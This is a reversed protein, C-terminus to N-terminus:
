NFIIRWIELETMRTDLSELSENTNEPVNALKTKETNTFQKTNTGDQLDDTSFPTLLQSVELAEVQGSDTNGVLLKYVKKLTVMAPIPNDGSWFNLIAM